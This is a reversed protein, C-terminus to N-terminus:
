LTPKRETLSCIKEAVICKEREARLLCARRIGANKRRKRCETRLARWSKKEGGVIRAASGAYHARRVLAGGIEWSM